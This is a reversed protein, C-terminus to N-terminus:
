DFLRLWQGLSTDKQLTEFLESIERFYAKLKKENLREKIQHNVPVVFSTDGESGISPASPHEIQNRTENLEKIAGLRKRFPGTDLSLCNKDLERLLWVYEAEGEMRQSPAWTKDQHDNKKATRIIEQLGRIMARRLGVIAMSISERKFQAVAVEPLDFASVRLMAAEEGFFSQDASAIYRKCEATAAKRWAEEIRRFEPDVRDLAQYSSLTGPDPEQIDHALGYSRYIDEVALYIRDEKDIVEDKLKRAMEITQTALWYQVLIDVAIERFIDAQYASYEPLFLYDFQNKFSNDETEEDFTAAVFWSLITNLDIIKLTSM